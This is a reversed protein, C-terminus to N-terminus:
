IQTTIHTKAIDSYGAFEKINSKLFTLLEPNMDGLPDTLLADGEFNLLTRAIFLQKNYSTSPTNGFSALKGDKDLGRNGLNLTASGTLLTQRSHAAWHLFTTKSVLWAMFKALNQQDEDTPNQQNTTLFPFASFHKNMAISWRYIMEWRKPQSIEQWHKALYGEYFQLLLNYYKKEGIAHYHQDCVPNPPSYNLFNAKSHMAKIIVEAVSKENLASVDLVSGKGFIVGKSGLWNIFDLGSLHPALLNYIPHSPKIYKFFTAAPIGPLIHGEALHVEAEGKLAFISLAVYIAWKKQEDLATTDFDIMKPQLDTAFKISISTLKLTNSDDLRAIVEVNPLSENQDLELGDWTANWIYTKGFKKYDVACIKNLLEDILTEPTIPFKSYQHGFSDYIKQVNAATLWQRFLTVVVSKIAEPFVAKFFRWYYSLTPMHSKIPPNLKTLDAPINAYSVAAVGLDNKKPQLPLTIEIKDVVVSDKICHLGKSEFPRKNVVVGLVLRHSTELWGPNWNYNFEFQGYHDTKAKGLYHNVGLIDVAFVRIKREADPLNDDQFVIRGSVGRNYLGDAQNNKKNYSIFNGQGTFLSNLYHLSSSM